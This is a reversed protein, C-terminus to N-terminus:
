KIPQCYYEIKDCQTCKFRYLDIDITTSVWEDVLRDEIEGTIFHEESVWKQIRKYHDCGNM